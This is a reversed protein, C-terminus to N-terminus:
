EFAIKLAFLLSSKCVNGMVNSEYEVRLKSLFKRSVIKACQKCLNHHKPLTYLKYM